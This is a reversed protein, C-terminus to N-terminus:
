EFYSEDVVAVKFVETVRCGVEHAVMLRSLQPGDILVIRAGLKEATARANPSFSSTTVFIGKSVDKLGLAGYFDRIAGSGIPSTAQYRKAQVYVQDVGLPDLNIVGDVGDDGSGGLVKGAEPDYGYGMKSLLNIILREFDSPDVERVRDLLDSALADAIQKHSERILEDPTMSPEISAPISGSQTFEDFVGSAEALRKLEGLTIRDPGTRLYDRGQETISIFGRRNSELLGAEKLHFRAWHVRNEFRKARGSPLMENQEEETLNFLQALERVVDRMKVEAPEAAQLIPRLLTQFDPIM